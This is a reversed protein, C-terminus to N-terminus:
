LFSGMEDLSVQLNKLYLDDVRVQILDKYELNDKLRILMNEEYQIRESIQKKLENDKTSNSLEKLAKVREAHTKGKINWILTAKNFDALEFGVEEFLERMYNSPILDFM